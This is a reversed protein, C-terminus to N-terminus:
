LGAARTGLAAAELADFDVTEPAHGTDALFRLLDAPSLAVSAENHLPHCCILDAATVANDLVVRVAGAADNMAALPTVAGPIVGLHEMLREPSAFSLRKTGLVKELDSIRIDRNERCTVLVLTTGKKDKLFMNKVHLGPLEGRLEKSEAVTRLPPHTHHSYAIGLADLRARLQEETAPM